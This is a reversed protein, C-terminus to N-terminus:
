DNWGVEPAISRGFDIFITYLRCTHFPPAISPKIALRMIRDTITIKRMEITVKVNICIAGPPGKLESAPPRGLVGSIWRLNSSFYPSSLGGTSCYM